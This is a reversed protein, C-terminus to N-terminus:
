DFLILKLHFWFMVHQLYHSYKNEVFNLLFHLELLTVKSSNKADALLLCLVTFHLCDSRVGKCCHRKLGSTGSESVYKVLGRCRNCAVYNTAVGDCEVRKFGKLLESRGFLDRFSIADNNNSIKVALESKADDREMEGKKEKARSNPPRLIERRHLSTTTATAYPPQLKKASSACSVTINGRQFTGVFISPFRCVSSLIILKIGAGTRDRQNENGFGGSCTILSITAGSERSKM